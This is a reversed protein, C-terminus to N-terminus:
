PAAVTQIQIDAGDAEAGNVDADAGKSRCTSDGSTTKAGGFVKEPNSVKAAAFDFLELKKM